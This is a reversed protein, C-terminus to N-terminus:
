IITHIYTYKSVAWYGFGGAAILFIFSLLPYKILKSVMRRFTKIILFPHFAITFTFFYFLQPIHLVMSHADKDGLTFSIFLDIGLVVSYDNGIFFAIFFSITFFFFFFSPILYRVRRIWFIGLSFLNNMIGSKYDTVANYIMLLQEGFILCVWLINNQRMLLAAFAM